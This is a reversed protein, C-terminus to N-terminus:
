TKDDQCAEREGLCARPMNGQANDTASRLLAFRATVTPLRSWM